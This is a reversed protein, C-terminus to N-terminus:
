LDSTFGANGNGDVKMRYGTIEPEGGQEPTSCLVNVLLWPREKGQPDGYVNYTIGNAQILQQGTQWRRTLQDFGMRGIAVALTRWHRRPIGSARFAEDWHGDIPPYARLKSSSPKPEARIDNM